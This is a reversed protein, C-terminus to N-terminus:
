RSMWKTIENEHDISVANKAGKILNQGKAMSSSSQAARRLSNVLYISADPNSFADVTAQAMMMHLEGLGSGDFVAKSDIKQAETLYFCVAEGKLHVQQSLPKHLPCASAHCKDFKPCENM